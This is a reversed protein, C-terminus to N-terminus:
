KGVGLKPFAKGCVEFAKEFAPDDRTFGRMAGSPFRGDATPDPMDVGNERMCRALERLKDVQEPDIEGRDKFPAHARCAETAEKLKKKDVDKIITSLGGGGDAGPDEMPIGHERMCQAFKRGQEARDATPTAGASAAPEASAAAVSAVGTGSQGGCGAALVALVTVILTRRM